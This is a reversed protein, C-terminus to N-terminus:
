LRRLLRPIVFRLAVFFALGAGVDRITTGADADARGRAREARAPDGAPAAVSTLCGVGM